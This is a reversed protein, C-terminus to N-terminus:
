LMRKWWIFESSTDDAYLHLCLKQTSDYNMYNEIKKKNAEFAVFWCCRDASLETGSALNIRVVFWIFFFVVSFCNVKM